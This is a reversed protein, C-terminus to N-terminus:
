EIKSVTKLRRIGGYCMTVNEHVGRGGQANRLKTVAGYSIISTDIKDVVEEIYMNSELISWYLNKTTKNLKMISTMVKLRFHGSRNPAIHNTRRSIEVYVLTLMVLPSQFDNLDYKLSKGLTVLKESYFITFCLVAEHSYINCVFVFIFLKAYLYCLGRIHWHNKKLVM